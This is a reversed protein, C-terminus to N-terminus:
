AQFYSIAPSAQVVFILCLFTSSGCFSLNQLMTVGISSSVWFKKSLKQGQFKGFKSKVLVPEPIEKPVSLGVENECSVRFFFSNGETLNDIQFYYVVIFVM